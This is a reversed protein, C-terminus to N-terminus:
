QKSAKGVISFVTVILYTQVSGTIGSDVCISVSGDDENISQSSNVMMVVSDTFLLSIFNLRVVNLFNYFCSVMTIKSSLM